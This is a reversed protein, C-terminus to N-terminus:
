NTLARRVADSRKGERLLSRKMRGVRRNLYVLATCNDHSGNLLAREVLKMAMEQATSNKAALIEAMEKAPTKEWVGDTCLMLAGGAPIKVPGIKQEAPFVSGTLAKTLDRHDHFANGVKEVWEKAHDETLQELAHRLNKESPDYKYARSDGLHSGSAIGKHLHLATVTTGSNSGANDEVARGAEDMGFHWTYFRERESRAKFILPAVSSFAHAAAQSAIHGNEMGGMGDFVGLFAHGSASPAHVLVYNDEQRKRMPGKNSYVGFLEPRFSLPKRRSGTSFPM